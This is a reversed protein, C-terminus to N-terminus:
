GLVTGPVYNSPSSPLSYVGKAKPVGKYMVIPGESVTTGTLIYLTQTCSHSVSSLSRHSNTQHSEEVAALWGREM